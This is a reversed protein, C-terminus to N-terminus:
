AFFCSNERREIFSENNSTVGLSLIFIYGFVKTIMLLTSKHTAHTGGYM